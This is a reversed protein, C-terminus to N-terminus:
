GMPIKSQNVMMILDKLIILEMPKPTIVVVQNTKMIVVMIQNTPNSNLHHFQIKLVLKFIECALKFVQQTNQLRNINKLDIM